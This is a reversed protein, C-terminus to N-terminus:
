LAIKRMKTPVKSMPKSLPMSVRPQTFEGMRPSDIGMEMKCSRAVCQHHAGVTFPTAYRKQGVQSSINKNTTLTVDSGM